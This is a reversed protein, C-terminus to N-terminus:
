WVERTAGSPPLACAVKYAIFISSAIIVAYEAPRWKRSVAIRRCYNCSSLNNANCNKDVATPARCSSATVALLGSKYVINIYVALNLGKIRRRAGFRFVVALIATPFPKAKLILALTNSRHHTLAFVVLTCGILEVFGGELPPKTTSHELYSIRM